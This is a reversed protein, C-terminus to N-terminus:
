PCAPHRAHMFAALQDLDLLEDLAGVRNRPQSFAARAKSESV